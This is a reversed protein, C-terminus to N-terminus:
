RALWRSLTKQERMDVRILADHPCARECAPGGLQDICLDCKTAKLIPLGSKEDVLFAGDATRTEVMRINEYPCSKACTGCGICTDDNIVVPGLPSRHIAGTPCGIMCVPDACHMCANAILHRGLQVGHRVFRPNNDHAAACAIVCDDCQICRDLDMLMTARGNIFRNEVVFERFEAERRTRPETAFVLSTEADEMELPKPMLRAPLAPLVLEELVKTPVFLVDVYGLARLTHRFPVQTRARWNHAVEDVGFVEGRGLYSTTVEGHGIARSVRAFGARLLYVGNAYEGEDVILPERSIKEQASAERMNAYSGYWDFDGFTEFRVKEAVQALVEPSLHSFLNTERLHVHLSNQRYLRDIHDKIAPAFKRLERLGQWRIELLEADSDAFISATRPTRGLAAIEGFFEGVEIIATRHRDLIAPVDQLFIRTGGDREGVGDKRTKKARRVEPAGHRFIQRLAAFLGKRRTVSRGLLEPPLGGEGGRSLVVRVSGSVVFFASDGYDGERVVIDGKRYRVLRTDNKLIGDLPIRAPFKSADIDRFPALALMRDLAAQPMEGYPVDWRAPRIM